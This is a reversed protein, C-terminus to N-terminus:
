TAGDRLKRERERRVAKVCERGCYRHRATSPREFLEGCGICRVKVVEERREANYNQVYDENLERWRRALEAKGIAAM